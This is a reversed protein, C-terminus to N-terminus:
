CVLACELSMKPWYPLRSVASTNVVEVKERRLDVALKGMHRIFLHYPSDNRLQERPRKGPQHQHAGFFHEKGGVWCMDFGVLVMRKAGWLWALNM